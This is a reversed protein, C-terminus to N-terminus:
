LHFGRKRKAKKKKILRNFEAEEAATADYSSDGCFLGIGFGVGRDFQSIGQELDEDKHGIEQRVCELSSSFANRELRSNINLYSFEWSIKSGSFSFGNHEFKVRQVEQMTRSVKFKMDINWIDLADKLEQWDRVKPLKEKLAKYIEHKARDYPRLREEKVQDKGNAFHLRYKATLMKCVKENRYRDNKDSITRGDNDVRNFVIHCPPHERDIHRAIIYQTNRIGMLEM